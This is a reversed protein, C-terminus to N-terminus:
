LLTISRAFPFGTAGPALPIKLLPTTRDYNVLGHGKIGKSVLEAAHGWPTFGQSDVIGFFPRVCSPRVSSVQIEVERLRRLADESGGNSRAVM